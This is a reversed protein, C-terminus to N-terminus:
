SRRRRIGLLALGFLGLSAPEPIDPRDYCITRIQYDIRVSEGSELGSYTWVFTEITPQPDIPNELTFEYHDDSASNDTVLVLPAAAGSSDDYLWSLTAPFDFTVNGVVTVEGVIFVHKVKNLNQENDFSFSVSGTQSGPDGTIGGEAYGEGVRYYPFPISDPNDWWAPPNVEPELGAFAPSAFGIVMILVILKRM